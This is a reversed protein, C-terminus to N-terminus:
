RSRRKQIRRRCTERFNEAAYFNFNPKGYNIFGWKSTPLLTTLFKVLTLPTTVKRATKKAIVSMWCHACGPWEGLVVRGKTVRLLGADLRSRLAPPVSLRGRNM